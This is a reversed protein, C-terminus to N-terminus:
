GIKSDSINHINKCHSFYTVILAMESKRKGISSGCVMYILYM